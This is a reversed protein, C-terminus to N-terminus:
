NPLSIKLKELTDAHQSIIFAPVYSALNEPSLLTAGQLLISCIPAKLMAGGAVPFHANACPIESLVALLVPVAATSRNDSADGFAIVVGVENPQDPKCASRVCTFLLM